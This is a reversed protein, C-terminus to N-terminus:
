TSATRPYEVPTVITTNTVGNIATELKVWETNKEIKDTVTEPLNHGFYYNHCMGWHREFGATCYYIDPDTNYNRYQSSAHQRWKRTWYYTKLDVATVDDGVKRYASDINDVQSSKFLEKTDQEGKNVTDLEQSLLRSGQLNVSCKENDHPLHMHTYLVKDYKLINQEYNHDPNGNITYSFVAIVLIGLLLLSFVFETIFLSIEISVNLAEDLKCAKFVPHLIEMLLMLGRVAVYACTFGFIVDHLFVSQLDIAETTARWAVLIVIQFVLVVARVLMFLVKFQYEFEQLHEGHYAKVYQYYSNVKQTGLELIAFSVVAVFVMQLQIELVLGKGLVASAYGGLVLTAALLASAENTVPGLTKTGTKYHVGWPTKETTHEYAGCTALGGVCSTLNGCYSKDANEGENAVPNPIRFSFMGTSMNMQQQTQPMHMNLTHMPQGLKIHSFAMQDSPNSPAKAEPFGASIHIASNEGHGITATVQASPDTQSVEAYQGWYYGFPLHRGKLHLTYLLVLLLSVLVSPLHSSVRYFVHQTELFTTKHMSSGLGESAIFLNILYWLYIFGYMIVRVYREFAKTLRWDRGGTFQM